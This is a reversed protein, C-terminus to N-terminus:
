TAGIPERVASASSGGNMDYRVHRLPAERLAATFVSDLSNAVAGSPQIGPERQVRGPIVSRRQVFHRLM